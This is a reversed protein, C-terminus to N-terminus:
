EDATRTSPFQRDAGPWIIRVGGYGSSTYVNTGRGGGYKGSVNAFPYGSIRFVNSSSDFSTNTIYYEAIVQNGVKQYIAYQNALSGNTASDFSPTWTGEEYDDLKNADGTGGVYLAM